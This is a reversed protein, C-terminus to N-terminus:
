YCSPAPANMAHSIVFNEFMLPPMMLIVVSRKSIASSALRPGDETYACPPTAISEVFAHHADALECHM